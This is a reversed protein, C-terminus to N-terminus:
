MEPKRNEQENIYSKMALVSDRNLSISDLKQELLFDVFEEYDSSAQGCIGVYKGTKKCAAVAMAILIRTAEGREDLDCEMGTDRDIGLTLQTLDNSGISYGDFYELFQEALLANSPIECMMYTKLNNEGRKLEYKELLAMVQEAEIPSRVFPVLLHVNTLGMNNRVKKIAQCELGFSMSFEDSFYRMAGRMGLMPNDEDPEFLEGGILSAYESSKFDSFRVNVPRPYFAAAIMGIGQALKDVFFDEPSDYGESLSDIKLQTTRDLQQYNLLANPHAKITNAMLFELRVLGVGDVPLFSAEMAQEPNSLNILVSTKTSKLPDTHVKEVDFPLIGQYVHGSDGDSCAVTIKEGDCISETANDCGVLAPIGMERAIIAAHCTRGGRNTVIAAARKMVPEWDPDTKDTVLVEGGQLEGMRAPDLIVRAKGTAIRRGVSRGSVIADGHERLSFTEYVTTQKRNEATEPRAQVIFLEGTYGDKAWEIDMPKHSGARKSYHKEIISAYRALTLVESDDISFRHRESAHVPVNKTYVGALQEPAYIMKIEKSGLHKKILPEFGQDLTPKYVYFEDPNVAGKVVNEGLGYSSTILVADRFSSETDLTFMVGSCAQDSRVMKQVAVSISVDKHDIGQKERYSIARDTFLSAFVLKCTAILNRTGAVNLYSDQQGAFSASQLDEATASSRVAVDPKPGYQTELEEYADIIAECLEDPMQSHIISARIKGGAYTLSDLDRIDLDSLHVDILGALNNHRLFRSFADTTIAFGNPVKVGLDSLSGYMEGLSANKGGVLAIDAMSIEKFHKIPQM